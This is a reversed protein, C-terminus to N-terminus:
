VLGKALTLITCATPCAGFTVLALKSLIVALLAGEVCRKTFATSAAGVAIIAVNAAGTFQFGGATLIATEQVSCSALTCAFRGELTFEAIFTAQLGSLALTIAFQVSSRAQAGIACDSSGAVQTADAAHLLRLALVTTCEVGLSAAALTAKGKFAFLARHAAQDLSIATM